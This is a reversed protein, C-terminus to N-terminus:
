DIGMSLDLAKTKGPGFGGFSSRSPIPARSLVPFFAESCVVTPWPMLLPRKGTAEGQTCCARNNALNTFLLLIHLTDGSIKGSVDYQQMEATGHRQAIIRGHDLSIRPRHPMRCSNGQVSKQLAFALNDNAATQAGSIRRRRSVRLTPEDLYLPGRWQARGLAFICGDPLM